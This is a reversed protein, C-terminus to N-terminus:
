KHHGRHSSKLTDPWVFTGKHLNFTIEGFIAKYSNNMMNNEKGYPKLVDSKFTSRVEFLILNSIWEGMKAYPHTAECFTDKNKFIIKIVM